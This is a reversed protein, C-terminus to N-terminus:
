GLERLLRAAEELSLSEVRFGLPSVVAHKREVVVDAVVRVPVMARVRRDSSWRFATGPAIGLESAIERASRGSARQSTIWASIRQKLEPPVCRGRRTSIRDLEFRLKEAEKKM